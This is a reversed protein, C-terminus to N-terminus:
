SLNAVRNAIPIYAYFWVDEPVPTGDKTKMPHEPYVNYQAYAGGGPQKRLAAM